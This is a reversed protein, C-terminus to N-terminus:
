HKRLFLLDTTVKTGANERFATNPLRYAAVLDAHQSLHRRVTADRKDFTYMSTILALLGGPRVKDLSKVLFYDHLSRTLAPQRRYAPDFVAVNGFPVNGVVVDYFGNALPAQEFPSALIVSDPYLAQAIRASISDLEVGTRRSGPLLAEPMCGFFHGIGCSPELVHIGAEVGMRALAQWMFEILDISTYHANPTSARASALEEPTLMQTLEEAERKWEDRPYAEFVQPLAGWGVYRVLQAKEGETAAREENEVHKLVRIARLNDALKQKLSGCGIAHASTIRFDRALTSNRGAARRVVRPQPLCKTETDDGVSADADSVPPECLEVDTKPPEVQLPVSLALPQSDRDECAGSVDPDPLLGAEARGIPFLCMQASAPAFSRAKPM